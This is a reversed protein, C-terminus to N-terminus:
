VSKQNLLPNKCGTNQSNSSTPKPNQTKSSTLRFGKNGSTPPIKSPEEFSVKPKNNNKKYEYKPRANPDDKVVTSDDFCWCCCSM